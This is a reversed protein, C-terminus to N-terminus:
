GKWWHKFWPTLMLVLYLLGALLAAVSLIVAVLQLDEVGIELALRNVANILCSILADVTQHHVRSTKGVRAEGQLVADLSCRQWVHLHVDTTDCLAVNDADEGIHRFPHDSAEPHVGIDKPEIRHQFDQSLPRRPVSSSLHCALLCTSITQSSVFRSCM